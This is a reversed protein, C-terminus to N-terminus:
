EEMFKDYIEKVFAPKVYPNRPNEGTFDKFGAPRWLFDPNASNWGGNVAKGASDFELWYKYDTGWDSNGFRVEMNFEVVKTDAAAPGHFGPETPRLDGTLEKASELTAGHFNYNWVHDGADKDMAAARGESLWQLMTTHFELPSIDQGDERGMHQIDKAKIKTETGDVQRFTFEREPDAKFPDTLVMYDGQWRWMGDGGRFLADDTDVFKGHLQKGDKTVLIDPKKDFRNGVFDTGSAQSNAIVTLLGLMDQKTFTVNDITVSDKLPEKFLVGALAVKDCSGWWGVGMTGDAKGDGSTPNAYFVTSRETETLAAGTDKRFFQFSVEGQDNTLRDRRIEVVEGDLTAKPVLSNRSSVAAFNGDSGLFDVRVGSSVKGDGDFDVGTSMEADNERLNNNNIMHGTDREGILWGLAPKREFELAKAQEEMGRAKLLQDLKALPGEKAWLNTSASGAQDNDGAGAMPWYTTTWVKGVEENRVDFTKADTGRSAEYLDTRTDFDTDKADYGRARSNRGAQLLAEAAADVARPDPAKAGLARLKGGYEAFLRFALEPTQFESSREQLEQTFTAAITALDTVQAARRSLATLAGDPGTGDSLGLFGALTVKADADFKDGARELIRRLDAAETKSLGPGDQTSEILKEVEAKTIKGDALQTEFAGRLGKDRIYISM